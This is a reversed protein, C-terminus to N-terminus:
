ATESTLYDYLGVTRLVREIRPSFNTVAFDIRADVAAEKSRLLARLGSSDLFEVSSLDAHMRRLTATRITETLAREVEDATSMDIEGTLAVVCVDDVVRTEVIRTEHTAMGGEKGLSSLGQPAGAPRLLM